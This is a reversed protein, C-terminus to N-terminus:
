PAARVYVSAILSGPPPNMIAGARCYPAERLM